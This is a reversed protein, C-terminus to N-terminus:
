GPDAYYRAEISIGDPDRFYLARGFGRAGFNHDDRRDIEIGAQALRRELAQVGAQDFTMCFHNPNRAEPGRWMKPPFFDLVTGENIRASPFPAAGAVFEDLRVSALGLVGAYFRVSAQPDRVELVLHDLTPSMAPMTPSRLGAALSLQPTMACPESLETAM